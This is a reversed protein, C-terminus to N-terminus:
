RGPLYLRQHLMAAGACWRVAAGDGGASAEQLLARMQGSTLFRELPIDTNPASTLLAILLADEALPRLVPMAWCARRRWAAQPWAANARAVLPGIAPNFKIM